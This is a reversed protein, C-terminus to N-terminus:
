AKKLKNGNCYYVEAPINFVKLQLKITETLNPTTVIWFKTGNNNFGFRRWKRMNQSLRNPDRTIEIIIDKFNKVAYVHPKFGQIKPIKHKEDYKVTYGERQLHQTLTRMIKDNKIKMKKDGGVVVVKKFM